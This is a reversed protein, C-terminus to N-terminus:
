LSCPSCRGWPYAPLWSGLPLYPQLQLALPLTLHLGPNRQGDNNIATDSLPEPPRLLFGSPTPNRRTDHYNGQSPNHGPGSPKPSYTQEPKVKEGLTHAKTLPQNPHLPTKHGGRLQGSGRGGRAMSPWVRSSAKSRGLTQLSVHKSPPRRWVRSSTKSRLTHVLAGPQCHSDGAQLLCPQCQHARTGGTHVSTPM